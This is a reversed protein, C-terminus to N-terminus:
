ACRVAPAMAVEAVSLRTAQTASRMVEAAEEVVMVAAMAAEDAPRHHLPRHVEAEAAARRTM